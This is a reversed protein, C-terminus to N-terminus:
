SNLLFNTKGLQDNQVLMCLQRTLWVLILVFEVGVWTILFLLVDNIERKTVFNIYM